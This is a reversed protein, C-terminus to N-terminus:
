ANLFNNGSIFVLTTTPNAISLNVIWWYTGVPPSGTGTYPNQTLTMPCSYWLCGSGTGPTYVHTGACGTPATHTFTQNGYLTPYFVSTGMNMTFQIPAGNPAALCGGVTAQALTICNFGQCCGCGSSGGSGGGVVDSATCLWRGNKERFIPMWGSNVVTTSLNYVPQSTGVKQLSNNILNIQYIDCNAVGAIDGTATGTAHTLAPITTQAKAVFVDSAQHSIEPESKLADNWRRGRYSQILEKLVSRDNADLGYVEIPQTM